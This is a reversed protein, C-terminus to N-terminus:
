ARYELGFRKKGYTPDSDSDTTHASEAEVACSSDEWESISSASVNSSGEEDGLLTKSSSEGSSPPSTKARAARKKASIRLFNQPSKQSRLPSKVPSERLLATVPIVKKSLGRAAIVSTTALAPSAFM